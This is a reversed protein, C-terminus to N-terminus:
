IQDNRKWEVGSKELLDLLFQKDQGLGKWDLLFFDIKGKEKMQQLLDPTLHKIAHKPCIYAFSLEKRELLKNFNTCYHLGGIGTAIKMERKRQEMGQLAEMICQVAVRGANEDNWEKETSGIEVYVLPKEIYPGHHTSEMTIDYGAVEHAHKKLALFYQRIFLADTPCMTSDKGGHQASGFNGVAHVTMAPKKSESSHTSCVIFLDAAIQKDLDDVFIHKKQLTYLKVDRLQYVDNGDFTEHSKKFPFHELLNKKMNRSAPDPLSTIIAIKM